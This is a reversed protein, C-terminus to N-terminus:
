KVNQVRRCRIPTQSRYFRYLYRMEEDRVCYKVFWQKDYGEAELQRAIKDIAAVTRRYVTRLSVDKPQEGHYFRYCIAEYGKKPLSSLARDLAVRVGLYENRTARIQIIDEAVSFPDLWHNMSSLAKFLMKRELREAETELRPYICLLVKVYDNM